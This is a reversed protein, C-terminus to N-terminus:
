LLGGLSASRRPEQFCDLRCYHDRLPRGACLSFFLCLPWEQTTVEHFSPASRRCRYPGRVRLRTKQEVVEENFSGKTFALSASVSLHDVGFHTAAAECFFIPMLRTRRKPRMFPRASVAHQQRKEIADMAARSYRARHTLAAAKHLGRPALNYFRAPAAGCIDHFDHNLSFRSESTV